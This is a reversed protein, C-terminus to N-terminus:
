RKVLPKRRVRRESGFMDGGWDLGRRLVCVRAMRTMMSERRKSKMAGMGRGRGIGEVVIDESEGAVEGGCSGSV